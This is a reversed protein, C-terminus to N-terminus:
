IVSQLGVAVWDSVDFMEVGSIRSAGPEFAKKGESSQKTKFYLSIVTLCGKTAACQLNEPTSSSSTVSRVCGQSPRTTKTKTCSPVVARSGCSEQGPPSVSARHEVESM